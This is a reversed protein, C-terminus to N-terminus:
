LGVELATKGIPAVLEYRRRAGRPRRHRQSRGRWCRHRRQLPILCTISRAARVQDFSRNPIRVRVAWSTMAVALLLVPALMTAVPDGSVAHSTAASTLEFFLGAYAWEKVRPHGPAVLAVVAALGTSSRYVWTTVNRKM